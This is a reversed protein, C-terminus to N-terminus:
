EQEPEPTIVQVNLSFTNRTSEAINGSDEGPAATLQSLVPNSFWESEELQRMLDSVLNNSDATGDIRINNGTRTIASYYVDSPLTKVLEDFMRVIIPRTGELDQIVGMRVTLEAKKSRLERIESIKSDLVGIQENLYANRENQNDIGANVFRDAGLVVIGAFAVVFGLSVFFSKKRAERKEERWPLLNINTM